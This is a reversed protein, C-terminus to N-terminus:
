QQSSRPHQEQREQTKAGVDQAEARRDQGKARFDEAKTRPPPLRESMSGSPPKLGWRLTSYICIYIYIYIFIHDLTGPIGPGGGATPHTGLTPHTLIKEGLPAVPLSWRLWPYGLATIPESSGGRVAQFGSRGALTWLYPSAHALKHTFICVCACVRHVYVFVYVHVCVCVCVCVCVHTYIYVYIYVYLKRSFRARPLGFATLLSNYFYILM